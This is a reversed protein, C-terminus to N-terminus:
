IIELFIDVLHPDFQKGACKKFEKIIEDKNMKGKYPRNGRMADYADAIALIRSILSISNGRLGQPYGSGDWWEHHSLIHGAIHALHPSSLAINYGIKPHNKIIKWEEKTLKEKKLLIDESIAVKGIDHLKALLILEALKNDDLKLAKGLKLATETVRETHEETEISKELLIRTLSTIISHSFSKSEVLKHHYMLEEAEFILSKVNKASDSKTANGISLSLFIKEKNIPKIKEKIREIIDLAQKETTKPLMIVFEDGGWRAIIDEKRACARLIKACKYLLLDGEKHGFADNVLKLGNIDAMILSLPLQRKSDLRKLEEEFYARNYLGTLSDHFSLFKMQAEAVKRETIDRVIGDYFVTGDDNYVVKSSIEVHIVSGDKKKLKTEFIRDRESSKPRENKFVYLQTPIDIDMLEKKSSYGLMKVLAQNVDLYKGDATTQYIGDLSREFLSRYRKESLRLQQEIQKAKTLDLYVAIIEKTPLMFVYNERWGSIREDTYEAMPWFKPKGTKYVEKLIDFLGFKIVAPFVVKVSKGIVDKKRINEFKEATKNFDKFIFDDGNDVPQYIAVAINNSDMLQFVVTNIFGLPDFRKASDKPATNKTDM